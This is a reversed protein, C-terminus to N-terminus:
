ILHFGASVSLLQYMFAHLSERTAMKVFDRGTIPYYPLVVCRSYYCRFADFSGLFPIIHAAKYESLTQLAWQETEGELQDAVMKVVVPAKSKTDSVKIIASDDSIM